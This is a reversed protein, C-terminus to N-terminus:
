KMDPWSRIEDYLLPDGEHAVETDLLIACHPCYFERLVFRPATERYPGAKSLPYEKMPVKDKWNGKAAGINNGCWTCQVHKESGSSVVQLYEGIRMGSPTIATPSKDAKPEENLREKRILNRQRKTAAPKLKLTMPDIAVGYIKKAYEISVLNILVDQLVLGPDRDIPDGYGGSGQWGQYIICGDNVHFFGWQSDTPVGTTAELNAPLGTKQVQKWDISDQFITHNALAGPYGGSIGYAMPSAVGCGCQVVGLEHAPSDYPTFAVSTGVSGRYKGAGGSDRLWGKYTYLLPAIEEAFEANGWRAFVNAMEGGFEVGDAFSRAGGAGCFCDSLQQVFHHGYCDIGNTGTYGNTGSWISTANQKYQESASFMKGLLLNSLNNVLKILGVTAISTPTPRTPNVISGEPAIVKLPRICGENWSIDYALMPFLPACVGGFAGQYTANIPVPAQKDTGTFDYTLTDQKKTLACNLLYMKDPHDYYVKARWTGDPLESLRKRMLTESEEIMRVSVTNLTNAGYDDCIATVRRKAEDNAAWQSKFDLLVMEPDRVMNLITDLILKDVKGKQIIKLGKSIFGEHFVETAGPSFGGPQMAGIDAVHVFNAVYAVLRHQYHIPSIMYIDPAHLAATYSDNIFYVDDEYIGPEQSYSRVVHKVAASACTLHHLFGVGGIMLEGKPTFLSVMLDHGEITSPAGSVQGLAIVAEDIVRFLRNRIVEYTIPDVRSGNVKM